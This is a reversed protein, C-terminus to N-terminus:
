KGRSNGGAGGELNTEFKSTFSKDNLCCDRERMESEKTFHFMLWGVKM